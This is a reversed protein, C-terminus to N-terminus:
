IGLMERVNSPVADLSSSLPDVVNSVSEQDTYCTDAPCGPDPTTDWYCHGSCAQGYMNPCRYPNCGSTIIEDNAFEIFEAQPKDFTSM